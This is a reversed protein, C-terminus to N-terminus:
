SKESGSSSASASASASTSTESENESGSSSGSSSGHGAVNKFKCRPAGCRCAIGLNQFYYGGYDVTIEEGFSIKRKAQVIIRTRQGLNMLVYQTNPTCSHNVYRTWGGRHAADVTYQPRAAGTNTPTTTTARARGKAQGKKSRSGATTTAVYDAAQAIDINMHYTALRYRHNLMSRTISKDKPEVAYIEGLYEGLYTGDRIPQLARVGRGKEATTYLEVLINSHNDQPPKNCWRCLDAFTCQCARDPQQDQQVKQLQKKGASVAVITDSGTDTDTDSDSEDDSTLGPASEEAGCAQCPNNPFGCFSPDEYVSGDPHIVKHTSTPWVYNPLVISQDINFQQLVPKSKPPFLAAPDVELNNGQEPIGAIANEGHVFGAKTLDQTITCKISPWVAPAGDELPLVWHHHVKHKDEDGIQHTEKLDEDGIGFNTGDKGRSDRCDKYVIILLDEFHDDFAFLADTWDFQYTRAFLELSSACEKIKPLIHSWEPEGQARSEGDSRGIADRFSKSHACITLLLLNPDDCFDTLRQAHGIDVDDKALNAVRKERPDNSEFRDLRARLRKRTSQAPIDFFRLTRAQRLLHQTWYREWQGITKVTAAHHIEAYLKIMFGEVSAGPRAVRRRKNPNGTGDPASGDVRQRIRKSRRLGGDANGPGSSSGNTTNNAAANAVASAQASRSTTTQALFDSYDRGRATQKRVRNGRRPQQASSM